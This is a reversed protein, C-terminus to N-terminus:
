FAPSSSWDNQSPRPQSDQDAPGGEAREVKQIDDTRYPPFSRNMGGSIVEEARALVSTQLLLGLRNQLWSTSQWISRRLKNSPFTLPATGRSSKILLTAARRMLDAFNAGCAELKWLNGRDTFLQCVTSKVAFAVIRERLRRHPSRRGHDAHGARQRMAAELPMKTVVAQRFSQKLHPGYALLAGLEPDGKRRPCNPQRIAASAAKL